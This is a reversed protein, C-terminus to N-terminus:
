EYKRLIIIIVYFFLKGPHSTTPTTLSPKSNSVPPSRVETDQCPSHPTPIPDPIRLNTKFSPYHHVYVLHPHLLPNRLITIKPEAMTKEAQKTATNVKLQPVPITTPPEIFIYNTLRNARHVFRTTRLIIYM